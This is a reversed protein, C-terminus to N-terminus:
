LREVSNLLQDYADQGLFARLRRMTKRCAHYIAEAKRSDSDYGFDRCFDEFSQDACSADGILSDLVDGVNPPDTHASGMSYYTTYTRTSGRFRRTFKCRYHSASKNWDDQPVDSRADIPESSMSLQHQAIFEAIPIQENM